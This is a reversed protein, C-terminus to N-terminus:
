KLGEFQEQFLKYPPRLCGTLKVELYVSFESEQGLAQEAGLRLCKPSEMEHGESGVM